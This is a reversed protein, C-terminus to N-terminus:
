FKIVTDRSSQTNKDKAQIYNKYNNIQYHKEAAKQNWEFPLTRSQKHGEERIELRMQGRSNSVFWQAGHHLSDKLLQRFNIVWPATEKKIPM